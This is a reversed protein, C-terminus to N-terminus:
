GGTYAALTRDARAEADGAPTGDAIDAQCWDSSSRTLMELAPPTAQWAAVADPDVPEGSALHLVLGLLALDWGIGVAGPGFEGWHPDVPATHTLVFRTGGGDVPSLLVEVWSVQDGFEWTVELRHPADCALVEGGANGEIQFRGGLRLDGSVPLFWRPLRDPDTVASWLDEPTTDFTRSARVARVPAGDREGSVVQRETAGILSDVDIDM